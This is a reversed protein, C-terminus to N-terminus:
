GGNKEMRELLRERLNGAMSPKHFFGRVYEEEVLTKICDILADDDMGRMRDLQTPWFAKQAAKMMWALQAANRIEPPVFTPESYILQGCEPCVHYYSKWDYGNM